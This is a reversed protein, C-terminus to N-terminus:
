SVVCNFLIEYPMSLRITAGASEATLTEAVALTLVNAAVVGIEFVSSNAPSGVVKVMQGAVFGLTVFSTGGTKTITDPNANAFTVDTGEYAFKVEANDHSYVDFVASYAMSNKGSVNPHPKKQLYMEPLHITWVYPSDGTFTFDAQLQSGANAATEVATISTEDSYRLATIELTVQRQTDRIPKVIYASGTGYQVKFNNKIRLIFSSLVLADGAAIINTVDAIRFVLHKMLIRYAPLTAGSLETASPNDDKCVFDCEMYVRPDDANGIIRLEEIMGGRFQHRKLDRDILASISQANEEAPYFFTSNSDGLAALLLARCNVYDAQVKLMGSANIRDQEGVKRAAGEGAVHTADPFPKDDTLTESALLVALLGTAELSGWAIEPVIEAAANYEKGYSTAAM